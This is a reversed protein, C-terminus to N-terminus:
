DQRRHQDNASPVRPQLDGRNEIGKARSDLEELCARADQRMRIFIYRRRDRLCEGLRAHHHLFIETGDPRELLRRRAHPHDEGLVAVSPTGLRRKRDHRHAPYRIGGPQAQSRRANLHILSPEYLNIPVQPGGRGVDEGGPVNGTAQHKDWLRYLVAEHRSGVGHSARRHRQPVSHTWASAERLRLIGLHAEGFCLGTLCVVDHGRNNVEVRGRSRYNAPLCMLDFASPMLESPIVFLLGWALEAPGMDRRASALEAQPILGTESAPLLDTYWDPDNIAAQYTQWLHNERGRVTGIFITRGNKEALAPRIVAPFLSPPTDAYEDLVVMDFGRGRLADPNDSGYIKIRAGNWFDVRLESENPLEAIFPRSYAKLMEWAIDKGAAYTTAIYSFRGGEFGQRAPPHKIAKGIEHEGGGGESREGSGGAGLRRSMTVMM